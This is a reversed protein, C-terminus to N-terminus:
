SGGEGGAGGAGDPAEPEPLGSCSYFNDVCGHDVRCVYCEEGAPDLGCPFLCNTRACEIDATYCAMCDDSLPKSNSDALEAQICEAVCEAQAADDGMGLCGKGCTGGILPLNNACVSTADSASSCAKGTEVEALFEAPTFDAYNGVCQSPAGAYGPTGADSDSGCGVLSLTAATVAGVLAFFRRM